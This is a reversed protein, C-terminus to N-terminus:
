LESSRLKGKLTTSRLSYMKGKLRPSSLRKSVRKKATIMGNMIEKKKDIKTKMLIQSMQIAVVMVLMEKDHAEMKGTFIIKKEKRLKQAMNKREMTEEAMERKMVMNKTAMSAM